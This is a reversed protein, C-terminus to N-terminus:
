ASTEFASERHRAPRRLAPLRSGLIVASVVAALIILSIVVGIRKMSEPGYAPACNRAIRRPAYLTGWYNGTQPEVSGDACVLNWGASYSSPMFVKTDADMRGPIADLRANDFQPPRGSSLVLGQITEGPTATLAVRQFGRDLVVRGTCMAPSCSLAMTRQREGGNWWYFTLRAAGLANGIVRARWTRSNTEVIPGLRDSQLEAGSRHMDLAAQNAIYTPWHHRVEDFSTALSAELDRRSAMEAEYVRAYPDNTTITITSATGVAYARWRPQWNPLDEYLVAPNSNAGDVLIRPAISDTKVLLVDCAACSVKFTNSGQAPTARASLLVDYPANFENRYTLLARELQRDIDVYEYSAEKPAGDDTFIERPDLEPDLPLMSVADGTIMADYHGITNLGPRWALNQYVDTDAFTKVRRLDRIANFDPRYNPFSTFSTSVYNRVAVYRIGYTSLLAGLYPLNRKPIGSELAYLFDSTRPSADYAPDYYPNLMPNGTWYRMPDQGGAPYWRYRVYPGDPWWLVLGNANQEIWASAQLSGDSIVQPQVAGRLNGSTWWPITVCAVIASGAVLAGTKWTFSRALDGFAVVFGLLALAVLKDPDRYLTGLPLRLMQWYAAPFVHSFILVLSVALWVAVGTRGIPSLWRWAALLAIEAGVIATLGFVILVKVPLAAYAYLGDSFPAWWYSRLTATHAVDALATYSQINELGTHGANGGHTGLLPILWWLSMGVALAGVILVDRVTARFGGTERGFALLAVVALVATQLSLSIEIAVGLATLAFARGSPTRWTLLLLPLIAYAMLLETHGSAFRSATWPNFAYFTGLLAAPAVELRFARVLLLTAAVVAVAFFLLILVKDGAGVGLVREFLGLTVFYPSYTLNANATGGHEFRDWAGLIHQWYEPRTSVHDGIILIGGAAVMRWNMLLPIVLAFAAVASWQRLSPLPRAQIRETAELQAAAYGLRLAVLKASKLALVGIASFPARLGYRAIQGLFIGARDTLIAGVSPSAAMRRGYSYYKKLLTAPRAVERHYLVANATRVEDPELKSLLAYDEGFPVGTPHGGIELYRSRRFIRPMGRGSAEFIEREAGTLRELWSHPDYPREPVVVATIAPDDLERLSRRTTDADLRQDADVFFIIPAHTAAVGDMRCDSVSGGCHVVKVGRRVVRLVTDDTSGNDVVVIEPEVNRQALITDLVGDVNASENKVPVIFAVKVSQAAPEEVVHLSDKASPTGPHASLGAPARRPPFSSM